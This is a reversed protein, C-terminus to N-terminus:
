AAGLARITEPNNRITNMILEEGDNSGLYDAMVSPDITNVIRINNQPPPADSGRGGNRFAEATDKRSTVNAPGQVLEPGFEGVLGVKGYPISGGTDYAGAYDTGSITSVIGSTAAIVQTIAALNAPFPTSAAAAIGQQIKVVADAIAFAKSAAFMVKYTKSQEGAFEKSLGALGDFLAEGGQLISSLRANELNAIQENRQATLELELETRQEETLSVNELILAKRRDYFENIQDLQEQYTDVRGLDGVAQEAFEADLRAKLEAQQTSGEKTNTLIIALRRDYSEQIVEEETRLSAQLRSFEVAREEALRKNVSIAEAEANIDALAQESLKQKATLQNALSQLRSGEGENAIDIFGNELSIRTQQALTLDGFLALEQELAAIRKAGGSEKPEVVSKIDPVALEPKELPKFTIDGAKKEITELNEIVEKAQPIYYDGVEPFPIETGATMANIKIKLDKVEQEIEEDDIQFGFKGPIVFTRSLVSTGILSEVDALDEYLGNLETGSGHVLSAFSRGMGEAALAIEGAAQLFVSGLTIGGNILLQIGKQTNPDNLTDRLGKVSETLTGVDGKTVINNLDNKLLQVQSSFSETAAAVEKNLAINDEYGKKGTEFADTLVESRTALTGFVASARIGTIGMAAMAANVDGGARQIRGLGQVFSDFVEASKGGFFEERLTEGTKGTLEQLIKLEKGGGRLASNIKQFAIGVQTGGAEAEIGLASLATGISLVEDATTGFQATAQAVRTASGAIESETAAFNNGLAVISAGLRDVESIATGTVTLIRAFSTAADEGALNTAIGLKGVTETFKAINDTGKVGLQGASQALALLQTTAVPVRGAIDRISDALQDLDKGVIGTTKSVGILGSEFEAIESIAKTLLRIGGVAAFAVAVSKGFNRMSGTASKSSRSLGDTAREAKAGSKALKELRRDAVEAELSQVRIQLTALDTM